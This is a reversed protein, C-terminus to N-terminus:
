RNLTINLIKLIVCVSQILQLYLLKFNINRTAPREQRRKIFVCLLLALFPLFYRGQVGIIVDSTNPTWLFLMSAYVLLYMVLCLFLIWLKQKFDFWPEQDSDEMISVTIFVVFVLLMTWPLRIELWGLSGGLMSQTYADLYVLFTNWYIHILKGPEKIFDSVIYDSTEPALGSPHPSFISIITPLYQIFAVAFAIGMIIWIYLWKKSGSEKHQKMLPILFLLGHVPFYVLKSFSFLAAVLALRIWGKKSIEEKFATNVILSIYVASFGLLTCDYSFSVSLEMMMPLLSLTFFLNKGKPLRSVAFAMCWSYFLLAFFRGTILLRWWSLHFIRAILVGIIQPFYVISRAHVKKQVSVRDELEFYQDYKGEDYYISKYIAKNPTYYITADSIADSQHLVVYDPDEEEKTHLLDSTYQYVALIHRDEDPASYPSLVIGYVIGTTLLTFFVIYGVKRKKIIGILLLSTSLGCIFWCIIRFFSISGHVFYKGENGVWLSVNKIPFEENTYQGLDVRLSNYRGPNFYLNIVSQNSKIIKKTSCNEAFNQNEYSWYVQILNDKYHVKDVDMVLQIGEIDGQISSTDLVFYSDNSTTVLSDKTKQLENYRIINQDASVLDGDIAESKCIVRVYVLEFLCAFVALGIMLFIWQFGIKRVMQTIKHERGNTKINERDESQKM